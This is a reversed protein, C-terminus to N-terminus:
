KKNEQRRKLAAEHLATLERDVETTTVTEVQLRNLRTWHQVAKAIQKLAEATEHEPSNARSLGRFDAISARCQTTSKQGAMNEFHVKITFDAPADDGDFLDLCNGFMQVFKEDQPLISHIPLKSRSLLRAGRKQLADIDGAFELAVNRASGRGVNAVVLNLLNLHRHDPLLYAVVEPETGAKRLRRNDRMLAWTLAAVVFATFAQVGGSLLTVHDRHLIVWGSATHLWEMM